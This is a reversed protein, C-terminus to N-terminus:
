YNLYIVEIRIRLFFDFEDVVFRLWCGRFFILIDVNLLYVIVFIEVEIVWIGEEMMWIFFFYNEIFQDGNLYRKFMEGNEMMYVCVVNCIVNYFVEFNILSFLIVRFFCNGDGIIEKVIRLKLINM